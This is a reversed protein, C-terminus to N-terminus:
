CESYYCVKAVEFMAYALAAQKSDEDPASIIDGLREYVQLVLYSSSYSCFHTLVVCWLCLTRM